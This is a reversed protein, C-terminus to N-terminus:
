AQAQCHECNDAYNDVDLAMEKWRYKKLRNMMHKPAYHRGDSQHALELLHQRSAAPVVLKLGDVASFTLAGEAMGCRAYVWGKVPDIPRVTATAQETIHKIAPALEPCQSQDKILQEKPYNRLTINDFHSVPNRKAIAAATITMAQPAPKVNQVSFLNTMPAPQVGPQSRPLVVANSFNQQSSTPQQHVQGQPVSQLFQPSLVQIKGEQRLQEVIDLAASM